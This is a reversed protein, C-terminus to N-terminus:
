TPQLKEELSCTNTQKNTQKIDHSCEGNAIIKSGWSIFDTMIEM